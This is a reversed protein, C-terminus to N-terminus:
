LNLINSGKFPCSQSNMFRLFFGTTKLEATDTMLFCKVNNYSVSKVTIRVKGQSLVCFISILFTTFISKCTTLQFLIFSFTFSM